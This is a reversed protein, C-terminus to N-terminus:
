ELELWLKSIMCVSVFSEDVLNLRYLTQSFRLKIDAKKYARAKKIEKMKTLVFYSIVYMLIFVATPLIM